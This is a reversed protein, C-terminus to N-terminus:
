CTKNLHWIEENELLIRALRGRSRGHNPASVQENKFAIARVQGGGGRRGRARSM